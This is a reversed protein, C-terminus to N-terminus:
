RPQRFRLDTGKGPRSFLGILHGAVSGFLFREDDGGPLRVASSVLSLDTGDGAVVPWAASLDPALEYVAWPSPCGSKGCRLFKGLDTHTSVLLTGDPTVSLNDPYGGVCISKPEGAVEGDVLPLRWVEGSTSASFYVADHTLAVGNPNHEAGAPTPLTDWKGCAGTGHRWRRVDGAGWLLGALWSWLGRPACNAVVITAGDAGVSLDNGRTGGPMRICGRWVLRRVAADGRLDFLEIADRGDFAAACPALDSRSPRHDVAAVRIVGSDLRVASIGHPSFADVLVTRCADPMDALCTADGVDAAPDFDDTQGRPWLLV